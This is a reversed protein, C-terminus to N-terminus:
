DRDDGSADVEEADTQTARAAEAGEAQEADLEERVQARYRARRIRRLMDWILLIVIVALVAVVVFGWPGPTVTAADPTGSPSPTTTVDALVALAAIAAHM